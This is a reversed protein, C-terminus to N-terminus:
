FTFLLTMRSPVAKGDATAPRFRWQRAANLSALRIYPGSFRPEGSSAVVKANDVKGAADISVQVSVTVKGQAARMERTVDNTMEPTARRVPVADSRGTTPAPEAADPKRLAAAANGRVASPQPATRQAAGAPPPTAPAPLTVAPATDFGLVRVSEAASRGAAEMLELRVDADVGALPRFVVHGERLEDPRMEIVRTAPGSRIILTGATARRVPDSGRDWSVDLDQALRVVKLALAPPAAAPPPSSPPEAAPQSRMAPLWRYAAMAAVGAILLVAAGAVMWRRARKPKAALDLSPQPPVPPALDVLWGNRLLYEDWPFEALPAEGEATDPGVTFLTASWPRQALTRLVLVMGRELGAAKLKKRDASILGPWGGPQVRFIGVAGPASAAATVHELVIGDGNWAGRLVGSIETDPSAALERLEQVAAYHLTVPIKRTGRQTELVISEGGAAPAASMDATAVDSLILGGAWLQCDNSTQL